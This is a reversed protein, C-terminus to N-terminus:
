RFRSAFDERIVGIMTDAFTTAILSRWSGKTSGNSVANLILLVGYTLCLIGVLATMARVLDFGTAKELLVQMISRQPDEWVSTPPANHYM